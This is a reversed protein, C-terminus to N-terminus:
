AVKQVIAIDGAIYDGIICAHGTRVQWNYWAVTARENREKNNYKSEEDTLMEFSRNSFGTIFGKCIQILEANILPYIKEWAPK